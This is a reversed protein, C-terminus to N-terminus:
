ITFNFDILSEDAALGSVHMNSLMLPSNRSSASCALRCDHSDHLATALNASDNNGVASLPCKLSLDLLIYLCLGCQITVIKAGIITQGSAVRMLYYIVRHSIDIAANMRIGKLVELTEQLATNVSSIHADFWKM